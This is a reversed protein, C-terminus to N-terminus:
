VNDGVYGCDQCEITVLGTDNDKNGWVENKCTELAYRNRALTSRSGCSICPVGLKSDSTHLTSAEIETEDIEKLIKEKDMQSIGTTWLSGKSIRTKNDVAGSPVHERPKSPVKSARLRNENEEKKQVAYLKMAVDAIAKRAIEHFDLTQVAMLDEDIVNVPFQQTDANGKLNFHVVCYYKEHKNM